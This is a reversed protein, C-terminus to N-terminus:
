IYGRNELMSNKLINIAECKSINYIICCYDVNKVTVIAIDSVNLCLITLDHCGNCVFNLIKFGHNLLWYYCIMFEKSRISKPPDIGELSRRWCKYSSIKMLKLFIRM